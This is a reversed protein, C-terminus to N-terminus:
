SRFRDFRELDIQADDLATEVATIAAGLDIATSELLPDPREMREPVDVMHVAGPGTAEFEEWTLPTAVPAGPRPRLSWPVVGTSLPRNRLWDVFVRGRRQEIRFETTLLDPHRDALLAACGQAFRGVEDYGHEPHLAAIVHYGKSGTAMPITPVGVEDLLGSTLRAATAALDPHDAPPDLDMIFRDPRDPRDTTSTPAHFTITGQNALYPFTREDIAVPYTTSGGERRGIEIRGIWDPYHDPANKQMFGQGALGKPFRQITLPRGGAHALMRVAVLEYYAVVEGKTIGDDPFVVRDANSVKIM